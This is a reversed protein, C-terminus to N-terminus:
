RLGFLAHLPATHAGATALNLRQHLADASRPGGPRAGDLVHRIDDDFHSAAACAGVDSSLDTSERYPM